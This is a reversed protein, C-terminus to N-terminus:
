SGQPNRDRQMQDLNCPRCQGKLNSRVYRGGYVRAIIHGAEASPRIGCDRCIPEERLVQARLGRGQRTSGHGGSWKEPTHEECYTRGVVKEPCGLHGCAKPARPM